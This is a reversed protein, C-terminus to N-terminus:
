GSIRATALHQHYFQMFTTIKFPGQTQLLGKSCAARQPHLYPHQYSNRHTDQHQSCLTPDWSSTYIGARNITNLTIIFPGMIEEAASCEGAM